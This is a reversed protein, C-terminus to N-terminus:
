ASDPQLATTRASAIAVIALGIVLWVAHSAIQEVVPGIRNHWGFAREFFWAAAAIGTLCAGAVRFAPYIRTRALMILWPMSVLIVLLQVAEIGINFAFVSSVLTVSDFGFETLTSAFALGHVLGFGGAIYIEKGRFIPILAHIASVFISLAIASEIFAGPLHVWGAAGLALTISHGVTFSTVIKAIRLIAKKGGAFGGWRKGNALLPAPLLLALLFLLHDTGEAIHRAGLRFVAAFGRFWNGQSRDIVISPTTDRMTGIIVPSGGLQGNHWDSAISVIATHTILQHFIVDYNFTLRDVQAGPPPTMTLDVQMDPNQETVPTVTNVSVTWPRGDPSVPHIHQHVYAKLAEGYQKVALNADTPVPKGWGLRLEIIPLDLRVDIRREHIRLIVASTPMPHSWGKSPILLLLLGIMAIHRLTVKSAILQM